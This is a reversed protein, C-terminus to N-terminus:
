RSDAAQADGGLSETDPRLVLEPLTNTGKAVQVRLDTTKPSAYQTPLVNPGPSWSEGQQQVPCCTVTVAYEGEAAGDASDFTGVRYRGNADTRGRAATAKRDAQGQPHLVVLAGALPKENWLVQGEARYLAVRDGHGKGCGVIALGMVAAVLASPLMTGRCADAPRSSNFLCFCLRM